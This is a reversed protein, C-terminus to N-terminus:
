YSIDIFPIPLSIFFIGSRRQAPDMDNLIDHTTLIIHRGEVLCYRRQRYDSWGTGVIVGLISWEMQKKAKEADEKNGAASFYMIGSILFSIIAILGFIGLLWQLLATLVGAITGTPLGMGTPLPISGGSSSAYGISSSGPYAIGSSANYSGVTTGYPSSSSIGSTGGGFLSGVYNGVASGLSSVISGIGGSTSTYGGNVAGGTVSLPNIATNSGALNTMQGNQMSYYNENGDTYVPAGGVATTGVLSMNSGNPSSAAGGTGPLPTTLQIDSGATNVFGTTGLEYTKGTGEEQYLPKGYQDNGILNMTGSPGGPLLGRRVLYLLSQLIRDLPMPLATLEWNM